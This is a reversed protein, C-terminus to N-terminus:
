SLNTSFQHIPKCQYSCLLWTDLPRDELGLLCVWLQLALTTSNMMSCSIHVLSGQCSKCKQNLCPAGLRTHDTTAVLWLGAGKDRVTLGDSAKGKALLWTEHPRNNGRAMPWRSQGQGDAAKGRVLLKTGPQDCRSFPM